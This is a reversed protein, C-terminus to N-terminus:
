PIVGIAKLAKEFGASRLMNTAVDKSTPQYFCAAISYYRSEVDGSFEGSGAEQMNKNFEKWAEPPLQDKRPLAQKTEGFSESVVREDRYKEQYPFFIKVGSKADFIKDDFPAFAFFVNPDNFVLKNYLEKDVMFNSFDTSIKTSVQVEPQGKKQPIDYLWRVLLNPDCSVFTSNSSVWTGPSTVMMYDTFHAPLTSKGLIGRKSEWLKMMETMTPFDSFEARYDPLSKVIGNKYESEAYYGEMEQWSWGSNKMSDMNDAFFEQSLEQWWNFIMRDPTQSIVYKEGGLSIKKGQPNAGQYNILSKLIDQETADEFLSTLTSIKSAVFYPRGQGEMVMSGVLPSFDAFYGIVYEPVEYYITDHYATDGSYKVDTVKLGLRTLVILDSRVLDATQFVDVVERNNSIGGTSYNFSGKTVSINYDGTHAIIRYAGYPREAGPMYPVYFIRHVVNKAFAAGSFLFIFVLVFALKSKM